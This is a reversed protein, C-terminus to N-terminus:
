PIYWGIYGKKKIVYGMASEEVVSLEEGEHVELRADSFDSCYFMEDKNYLYSKPVCFEKGTSVHRVRAIDGDKELMEVRSDFFRIRVTQEKARQARVARVVRFDDYAEYTLEKMDAYANPIVLANLQAGNKLGCGGDIAIIHKEYDFIPNMCHVDDRYLCVPWHGVVVNKRFNVKEQMFADRKLYSFLDEERLEELSDTPIGAHVFIYNGITLLIPLNSFFDLEKQFKDRILRKVEAINDECVDDLCIDLVKLIDLFFGNKWVKKNWKLAGVFNANGEPTDDCFCGLRDYDVNGMCTYVNPNEEMLRLIYQVTKLSEPGKEIVDGVIVLVDKKSYQVKKLVGDLYNVSGHIDSVAIVRTNRDVQVEKIKIGKNM